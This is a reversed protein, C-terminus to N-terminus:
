PGKEVITHFAAGLGNWQSDYILILCQNQNVFRRTQHHMGRGPIRITCQLICQQMMIRLQNPQGPGTDHM